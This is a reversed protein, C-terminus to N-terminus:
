PSRWSCSSCASFSLILLPSLYIQKSSVITQKTNKTEANTPPPRECRHIRTGALKMWNASTATMAKQKVFSLNKLCIKKAHTIQATALITVVANEQGKKM